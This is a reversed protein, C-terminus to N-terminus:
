LLGSGSPLSPDRSRTRASWDSAGRKKLKDAQLTAHQRKELIDSYSTGKSVVGPNPLMCREGPERHVHTDNKGAVDRLMRVGCLPCIRITPDKVRFGCDPCRKM